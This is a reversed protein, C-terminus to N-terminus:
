LICNHYREKATQDSYIHCWNWICQGMAEVSFLSYMSFWLDVNGRASFAKVVNSSKFLGSIRCVSIIHSFALFTFLPSSFFLDNDNRCFISLNAHPFIGLQTTLLYIPIRDYSSTHSSFFYKCKYGYRRPQPRLITGFCGVPNVLSFCKHLWM